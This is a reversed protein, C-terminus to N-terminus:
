TMQDDLYPRDAGQHMWTACVGARQLWWLDVELALLPLPVGWSGKLIGWIGVLLSRLGRLLPVNPPRPLITHYLITYQLLIDPGM